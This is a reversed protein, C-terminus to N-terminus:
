NEQEDKKLKKLQYYQKAYELKAERNKM